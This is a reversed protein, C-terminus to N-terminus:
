ELSILVDDDGSMRHDLNPYLERCIIEKVVCTKVGVDKLVNFLHLFENTKMVQMTVM